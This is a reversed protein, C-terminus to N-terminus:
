KVCRECPITDRYFFGKQDTIRGEIVKAIHKGKQSQLRPCDERIHFLDPDPGQELFVEKGEMSAVMAAVHMERRENNKNNFAM